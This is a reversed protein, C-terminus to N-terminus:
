IKPNSDWIMATGQRLLDMIFNKQAIYRYKWASLFFNKALNLRVILASNGKNYVSDGSFIDDLVRQGWKEVDFTSVHGAKVIQMVETEMGLKQECIWHICEVFRFYHMKDCWKWFMDWDVNKYEAKIFLAWDLVHRLKISEYLFHNMAHATLFLANFDASPILLKTNDVYKVEDIHFAITRLHKELEKTSQSGRIPLFYQHNEIMLGKFHVHSHKYHGRKVEAGIEESLLNGKEYGSGWKANTSIGEFLYADLDGFERHSPEPYYTSIAAGKLTLTNLGKEAMVEAFEAAKELRKHYGDEVRVVSALWKMKIAKPIQVSLASQSIANLVIAKIGQQSSLQFLTNWEKESLKSFSTDVM